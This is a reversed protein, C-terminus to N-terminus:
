KVHMYGKGPDTPDITVNMTRDLSLTLARRMVGSGVMTDVRVIVCAISEAGVQIHYVCFRRDEIAIYKQRDIRASKKLDDELLTWFGRPQTGLQKPGLEVGGPVRAGQSNGQFWVLTGVMLNDPTMGLNFGAILHTAAAKERGKVQRLGGARLIFGEFFQVDDM